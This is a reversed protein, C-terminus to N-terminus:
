SVVRDRGQKAQYLKNDAQAILAQLSSHPTPIATAVGCSLTVYESVASDRHPIQLARLVQLMEEALYTAGIQNTNPLIAIFEEGGYRAALDAPRKLTSYIVQAVQKLCDDGAQHGYTDNYAKFYDIDCLVLSIPLQERALRRWEQALYQDFGRRNAIGTLEDILVLQQLEQNAQLLSAKSLRCTEVQLHLQENLSSLAQTQWQIRQEVEDDAETQCFKEAADVLEALPTWLWKTIWWGMAGSVGGFVVGLVIFQPQLSRPSVYEQSQRAEDLRSTQNIQFPVGDASTQAPGMSSIALSLLLSSIFNISAIALGIRKSRCCLRISPLASCLRSM